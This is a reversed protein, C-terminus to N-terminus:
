LHRPLHDRSALPLTLGIEEAKQAVELLDRGLLTAAGELTIGRQACNRLDAIDLDSWDKGQDSMFVM